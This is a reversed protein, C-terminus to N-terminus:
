GGGAQALQADIRADLDTLGAGLEAVAGSQWETFFATVLDMYAGGVATIPVTQSAPHNFIDIFTAFREDEALEPSEAASKTSPVNRLGNSLMALAYDDTTLYQMLEWALEPNPSNHPIGVITGNIYGAGYDAPDATPMPATGYALDPADAEIFAVRWEGDIMMALRGNQFGHSSSWEDGAGTGYEVLNDYGFYDVLEQQWELLEAWAPDTSLISAGDVDVWEAGAMIAWAAPTNQYFGFLPNFGLVEIAGNADRKTLKKAYDALEDLTRPPETLGAEALLDENYYFGYADALMPLACRTGKYQTYYMPPETFIDESIGGVDMLPKLDVWGGDGCYQGVRSSSFSSVLDPADGARLANTINDDNIGGVVEITIDDRGQDYEAVVEQVVSLERDSFGVWFVLDTVDGAAKGSDDDNTGSGSEGADSGTGETDDSACAATLALALLVVPAWARSHAM